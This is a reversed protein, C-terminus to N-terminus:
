TTSSENQEGKPKLNFAIRIKKHYDKIVPDLDGWGEVYNLYNLLLAHKARDSVIRQRAVLRHVLKKKRTLIEVMNSYGRRQNCFKGTKGFFQAQLESCLDYTHYAACGTCNKGKKVKYDVGMNSIKM